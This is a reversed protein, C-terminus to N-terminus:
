SLTRSPLKKRTGLPPKVIEPQKTLVRYLAEYDNFLRYTTGSKLPLPVHTDSNGNEPILPLFKTNYYYNDYLIQTIIVGEFAVGRGSGEVERRFRKLYNATCVILVFDAQEIQKEMWLQWGETPAGNLYQDITCDIHDERLKNALSLIFDKHVQSDHSYSIFVKPPSSTMKNIRKKKSSAQKKLIQTKDNKIQANLREEKKMQTDLKEKKSSSYNLNNKKLNSIMIIKTSLYNYINKSNLKIFYNLTIYNNLVYNNLLKFSATNRYDSRLIIFITLFGVIPLLFTIIKSIKTHNLVTFSIFAITFATITSFIDVFIKITIHSFNQPYKIKFNNIRIYFIIYFAIISVILGTTRSFGIGELLVALLFVMFFVACINLLVILLYTITKILNFFFENFNNKIM